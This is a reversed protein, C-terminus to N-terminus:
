MAHLYLSHSVSLVFSCIIDRKFRLLYICMIYFIYLILKMQLIRQMINFAFLFYIFNSVHVKPISKVPEASCLKQPELLVNIKFYLILDIGGSSLEGGSM